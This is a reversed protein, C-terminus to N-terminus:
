EIRVSDAAFTSNDIINYDSSHHFFPELRGQGELDISMMSPDIKQNHLRWRNPNFPVMADDNRSIEVM